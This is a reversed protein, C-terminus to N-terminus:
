IFDCGTESPSLSLSSMKDLSMGSGPPALTQLVATQWSHLRGSSGDAGQEGKAPLM